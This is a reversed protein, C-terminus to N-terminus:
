RNVRIDWVRATGDDSATVGLNDCMVMDLVAGRHGSLELVPTGTRTDIGRVLGKETGCYVVEGSVRLQTVPGGMQVSWKSVQTSVDWLAAVGALNGTYVNHDSVAVSEVGQEEQDGCLLLGVNKGTNCNWLGVSGDSSGSLLLNTSSLTVNVVADKHVGTLNHMQECTKMDWIKVSGDSYGAAARRGDQMVQGCEVREGSGGLVKSEGGPIRWVWVQGDGTGALLVAAQPHWQLWLVDQGLEFSWIMKFGPYKWVKINGGMDAAALMSCDKNWHMETVSDSWDDFTSVVEGSDIRWVYGKDDEGGTAALGEGVNVSCSFVSKGHKSFVLKSTDEMQSNEYEEMLTELQDIGGPLEELEEGESEEEMDGDAEGDIVDIEEAVEDDYLEDPEEGIGPSPPPTDTGKNKM